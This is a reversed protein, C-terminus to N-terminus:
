DGWPARGRVRWSRRSNNGEEKYSASRRNPQGLRLGVDQGHGSTSVRAYLAARISKSM